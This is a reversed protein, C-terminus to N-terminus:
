RRDFSAMLCSGTTHYQVQHSVTALKTRKSEAAEICGPILHTRRMKKRRVCQALTLYERFYLGIKKSLMLLCSLTNFSYILGLFRTLNNLFFLLLDLHSPIKKKNNIKIRLLYDCVRDVLLASASPM